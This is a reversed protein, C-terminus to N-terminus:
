ALTSGKTAPIFEEKEKCDSEVDFYVSFYESSSVQLLFLIFVNFIIM